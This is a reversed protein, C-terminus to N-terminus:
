ISVGFYNLLSQRFAEEDKLPLEAVQNRITTKLVNGSITVRGTDTLITILRKRTFHSEPSSQHYHCMLEFEKLTREQDKFIYQPILKESEFRLVRFYDQDYRDILFDGGPDTQTVGFSLELPQLAFDGFGVDSLYHNEGIKVLIALHDFEQGYEGQNYVRASIRKANFGLSHLLEFFLGNLEYCFGGRRQLIVKEFIDRMRLSIPKGLHIDLNEFPVNLLHRAQLEKLVQLNPDTPGAYNIRKLYQEWDM